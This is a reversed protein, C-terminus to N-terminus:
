ASRKRRGTLGFWVTGAAATLLMMSFPIVNDRLGTPPAVERENQFTVTTDEDLTRKGTSYGTTFAGTGIQYSTEYGSDTETITYTMGAPISLSITGEHKLSFSYTRNTGAKLTGGEATKLDETYPAGDKELALTFGFEQNPDGM